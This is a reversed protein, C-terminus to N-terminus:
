ETVSNDATTTQGGVLEEVSTEFTRALEIATFIDPKIKGIEMKAINQQRIGVKEALEKQTFGYKERLRRINEPYAM